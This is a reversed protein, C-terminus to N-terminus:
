NHTEKMANYVMLRVDKSVDVVNIQYEHHLSVLFGAYSHKMMTRGGKVHEESEEFTIGTM